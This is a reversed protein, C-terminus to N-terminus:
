QSFEDHNYSGRFKAAPNINLPQRQRSDINTLSRDFVGSQNGNYDRAVFSVHHLGQDYGFLNIVKSFVSSNQDLVKGVSVGDIFFEVEAIGAESFAEVSLLLDTGVNASEPIPVNFAASVGSGEFNKVSIIEAPTSSVNGVVDKVVGSISYDKATDPIWEFSYPPSRKSDFEIGDILLVVEEIEEITQYVDFNFAIPSHSFGGILNSEGLPSDYPGINFEAVSSTTGLPEALPLREFSQGNFFLTGVNSFSMRPSTVYGSGGKLSGDVNSDLRVSQSVFIEEGTTENTDTQRPTAIEAPTGNGILRVVPVVKFITSNEDYGMGGDQIELGIIKGYNQSGVSQDIIATVEASSGSGLVDVRPTGIFNNGIPNSLKINLLSGSVSVNLDLDTNNITLDSIGSGFQIM